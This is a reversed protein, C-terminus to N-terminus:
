DKSFIVVVVVIRKRVTELANTSGPEIFALRQHHQHGNKTEQQKWPQNMKDFFFCKGASM